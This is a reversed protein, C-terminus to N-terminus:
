RRFSLLKTFFAILRVQNDVLYAVTRERLAQDKITGAADLLRQFLESGTLAGHIADMDVAGLAEADIGALTSLEQSAAPTSPVAASASTGLLAAALAIALFRKM